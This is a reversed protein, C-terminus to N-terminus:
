VSFSPMRYTGRNRFHARVQEAPEQTQRFGLRPHQFDGKFQRIVLPQEQEVQVVQAGQKTKDGLVAFQNGRLVAQNIRLRYGGNM